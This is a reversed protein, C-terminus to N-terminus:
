GGHDLASFFTFAKALIRFGTWPRLVDSLISLECIGKSRLIRLAVQTDHFGGPTDQEVAVGRRARRCFLHHPDFRGRKDDRAVVRRM